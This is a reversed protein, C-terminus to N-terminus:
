RERYESNILFSRSPWNTSLLSSVSVLLLIATKKLKCKTVKSLQSKEKIYKGFVTIKIQRPICNLLSALAMKEEEKHHHKCKVNQHSIQPILFIVWAVLQFLPRKIKKHIFLWLVIGKVVTM